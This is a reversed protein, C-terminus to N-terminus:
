ISSHSSDMPWKCPPRLSNSDRAARIIAVSVITYLLILVAHILPGGRWGKFRALTEPFTDPSSSKDRNKLREDKAPLFPEQEQNM